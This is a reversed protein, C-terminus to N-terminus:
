KRCPTHSSKAALLYSPLSIFVHNLCMIARFLLFLTLDLGLSNEAIDDGASKGTINGCDDGCVMRNAQIEFLSKTNFLKPSRRQILAAACTRRRRCRRRKKLDAVESARRSWKILGNASIPNRLVSSPSPLAACSNQWPSHGFTHSFTLIPACVICICCATVALYCIAHFM